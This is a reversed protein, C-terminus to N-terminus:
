LHKALERRSRPSNSPEFDPDQVSSDPIQRRDGDAVLTEVNEHVQSDQDLQLREEELAHEEVVQPEREESTVIPRSQRVVDGDLTETDLLRMKKRPHHTKLVGPHIIM